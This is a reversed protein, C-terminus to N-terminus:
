IAFSIKICNVNTSLRFRKNRRHLVPDRGANSLLPIGSYVQRHLTNANKDCFGEEDWWGIGV